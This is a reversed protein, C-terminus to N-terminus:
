DPRLARVFLDVALHLRRRWESSERDIGFSALRAPAGSVMALFHEALIAPDAAVIAGRAAHRKLLEILLQYRHSSGILHTRRAIEPFRLAHTAAVRSLKILAPDLARKLASEAIAWLAGRLDDLDPPPPEPQPWDNRQLAWWLVSSFLEEKCGFRAYLTMKTTRAAEALADMSTGDYGQELFLRLACERVNRELQEAEAPTPRGGARPRGSRRAASSKRQPRAM